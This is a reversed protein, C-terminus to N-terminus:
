PTEEVPAAVEESLQAKEKSPPKKPEEVKVVMHRLVAENLKFHRDLESLLQLAARFQLLVYTGEKRKRIEYALRRKGWQQIELLEGGKRTVVDKVAGVEAEVEKDSLAPDFIVIAEYLKVGEGGEIGM